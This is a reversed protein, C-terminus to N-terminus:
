EKRGDSFLLEAIVEPYFTYELEHVKAAIREPDEGAKINVREQRIINGEDYAANVWHITIGTVTDGAQSVAQHVHSGYMGKGGYKPLLAPHINIIQDPYERVFGEPIKWLFGALVLLDPKLGKLLALLGSEEKFAERNFCYLPIKLRRCREIVGANTKNCLVGAIRVRQNDRFYNAINEVNSGSGSAFLVINKIPDSM